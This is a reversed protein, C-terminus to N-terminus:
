IAGPMLIRPSTLTIPQRSARAGPASSETQPKSSGLAPIVTPRVEIYALTRSTGTTRAAIAPTTGAVTPKPKNNANVITRGSSLLARLSPRALVSTATISNSTLVITAASARVGTSAMSQHAPATDATACHCSAGRWLDGRHAMMQCQEPDHQPRREKRGGTCSIKRNNVLIEQRSTPCGVALEGLSKCDSLDTGARGSEPHDAQSIKNTSQATGCQRQNCDRQRRQQDQHQDM